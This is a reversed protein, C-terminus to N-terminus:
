AYEPVGYNATPLYQLKGGHTAPGCYTLDGSRYDLVLDGDVQSYLINKLWNVNDTDTDPYDSLFNLSGAVAVYYVKGSSKDLKDLM